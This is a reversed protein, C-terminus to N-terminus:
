KSGDPPRKYSWAETQRNLSEINPHKYVGAPFRTPYLRDALAWTAAIARWLDPDDPARWSAADMEAVSRFKRVPM